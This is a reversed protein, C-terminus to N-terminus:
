DHSGFIKLRTTCGRMVAAKCGVELGHLVTRSSSYSLDNTLIATEGRTIGTPGTSLVAVLLSRIFWAAEELPVGMDM